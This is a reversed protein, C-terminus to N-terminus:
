RSNQRIPVTLSPSRLSESFSMAIICISALQLVVLLWLTAKTWTGRLFPSGGPERIPVNLLNNRLFAIPPEPCCAPDFRGDVRPFFVFQIVGHAVVWIRVVSPRLTVSTPSFNLGGLETPTSLIRPDANPSMDLLALM